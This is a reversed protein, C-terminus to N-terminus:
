DDREAPHVGGPLHALPDTLANLHEAPSAGPRINRRERDLHRQLEAADVLTRREPYQPHTWHGDADERWGGAQELRERAEM